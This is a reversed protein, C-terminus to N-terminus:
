HYNASMQALAVHVRHRSEEPPEAPRSARLCPRQGRSKNVADPGLYPTGNFWPGNTAILPDPLTASGGGAVNGIPNTELAHNHDACWEYYLRHRPALRTTATANPHLQVTVARTGYIDWGLGKGPGTFFGM